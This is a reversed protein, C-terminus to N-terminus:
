ERKSIGYRAACADYVQTKFEEVARMKGAPSDSVAWGQADHRLKRTIENINPITKDVILNEVFEFYSYDKEQRLRMVADAVSSYRWCLKEYHSHPSIAQEFATTQSYAPFSFFLFSITMLKNPTM